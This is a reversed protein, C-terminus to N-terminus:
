ELQRCLMPDAALLQAIWPFVQAGERRLEAFQGFEMNLLADAYIRAAAAHALTTEGIAGALLTYIAAGAHPDGGARCHAPDCREAWQTFIARLPAPVTVFLRGEMTHM